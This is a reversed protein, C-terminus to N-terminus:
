KLASPDIRKPTESGQVLSKTAAAILKITNTLHGIDMKNAEDDVTHYLKDSNAQQTSVTHAPIGLRALSFNDSRMFLMKKLYPDPNLRYPTKKLNRQMIEGLNSKDFGTLFAQNPGFDSPRGIMEINVMAVVKEPNEMRNAFLRSGYGIHEEATFAIFVLTRESLGTNKFYKALQIVATTGSANDDAGNAISDGEVKKVVGLHDYHASFIVMEEPKSKGPIVGIIHTLPYSYISQKVDCSIDKALLHNLIIISHRDAPRDLNYPRNLFRNSVQQAGKFHRSHSSDLVIFKFSTDNYAEFLKKEEDKGKGIRVIPANGNIVISTDYTAIIFDEEPIRQGDIIVESKLRKLRKIPINFRFSDNGKMPKLGVNGFEKEIFTAAKEISVADMSERGLMQDDALTYLIRKVEKTTIFNGRQQSLTPTSIILIMLIQIYKM